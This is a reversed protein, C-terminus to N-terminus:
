TLIELLHFSVYGGAKRAEMGYHQLSLGLGNAEVALMKLRLIQWPCSLCQERKKRLWVPAINRWTHYLDQEKGLNRDATV